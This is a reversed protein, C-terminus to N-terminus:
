ETLLKDLTDLGRQITRLESDSARQLAQLLPTLTLQPMRTNLFRRVAPSAQIITVRRDSPHPARAVLGQKELRDVIGSVTSHALSVKQSLEKLSLGRTRVLEAMVLRQPATLKGRAFEAELRQRLKKRIVQLQTEIQGALQRLQPPNPM